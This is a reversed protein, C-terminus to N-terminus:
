EAGLVVYLTDKPLALRLSQGEPAVKLARRPNGNIDLQTATKLNPNAVTLTIAAHAIAWPM